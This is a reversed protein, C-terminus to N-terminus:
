TNEWFPNETLPEQYRPNPHKRDYPYLIYGGSYTNAKWLTPDTWPRLVRILQKEVVTFPKNTKNGTAMTRKITTRKSQFPEKPKGLLDHDVFCEKLVDYNICEKAHGKARVKGASVHKCKDCFVDKLAYLKPAIYVSERAYADAQCKSCVTECEVLWTLQPKNEDFILKGGNHKLRHKGVTQMKEHGVSTLFMSDTDGYVSILPREDYPKGRYESYLIDSWESTFARTWALVFSAIHTPYRSNEIWQSKDEIVSLQLDDCESNLFTINQFTVHDATEIYQETGTSKSWPDNKGTVEATDMQPLNFFKRWFSCDRKPLSKSIVTTHATIEAEGKTLKSLDKATIDQDFVVKKNDLKTAFSGYLANSLLKSISRQTMNKEKDAEEKAKINISVYEKCICKWQPWVAYMDDNILLRCQWGRNHLTILDITTLVEGILPENTWCLRGSKRSCLPPLPDLQELPPPYCDATIIMPKIREDFYSLQPEGNLLEQFIQISKSASVPDETRGYPMPHTLASAYMGCIDYVYIPEHLIGIFSPYCRGGRVSKRVFDYMKESPAQLCPLNDKTANESRFYVQRFLSHTNSSITPRQFIHFNCFLQVSKECFEQYGNILKWLLQATVKVDCICYKIAEEIMDYDKGNTPKNSEYEEKSNWYKESPYGSQDHEYKGTMLYENIASYPCYGKETELQYAKAANRLSTHTLLFTDRVMFKLGQWNVDTDQLDGTQWRRFTDTTPKVFSPNPLALTVDNFLLKGARPMFSRAIKYMAMNDNSKIGELVHSALVIEDFACINHGVVIIEFYTPSAAANLAKKNCLKELDEYQWLGNPDINNDKCFVKWIEIAFHEQLQNRFEKFHRGIAGEETSLLYFCSDRSIFGNKIAFEEATRKLQEHGELKFVILYPVLQKGYQSHYTYTELDYVIYLRKVSSISGVPFFKIPNWWHRTDNNIIHYFFESKRANCTHKESYNTGCKNCREQEAITRVLFWKERHKLFTIPEATGHNIKETYKEIYGRKNILKTVASPKKEEFLKIYDLPDNTDKKLEKKINNLQLLNNIAKLTNRYYVVKVNKFDLKGQLYTTNRTKIVTKSTTSAM